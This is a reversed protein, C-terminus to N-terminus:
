AATMMPPQKHTPSFPRIAPGVPNSAWASSGRRRTPQRLPPLPTAPPDSQQHVLNPLKGLRLGSASPASPGDFRRHRGRREPTLYHLARVTCRGRGDVRGLQEGTRVGGLPRSGGGPRGFPPAIPRDVACRACEGPRLPHLYQSEPSPPRSQPPPRRARTLSNRVPALATLWVGSASPLPSPQLCLCMGCPSRDGTFPDRRSAEHAWPEWTPSSSPTM